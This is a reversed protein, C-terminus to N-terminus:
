QLVRYKTKRVGGDSASTYGYGKTVQLSSHRGRSMSLETTGAPFCLCVFPDLEDPRDAGGDSGEAFVTSRRFPVSVRRRSGRPHRFDKVNM